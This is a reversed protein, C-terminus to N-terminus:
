TEPRRMSEVKLTLEHLDGDTMQFAAIRGDSASLILWVAEDWLRMYQLDVGSPRAPAPHQHFFGIFQLGDRDAEEFADFVQQPDAKFRTSSELVNTMVVVKTVVAERCNLRGFLLACAEIPHIKGSEDKLFCFQESTLRLIM